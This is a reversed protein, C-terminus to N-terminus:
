IIQKKQPDKSDLFLVSLMTIDYQIIIMLQGVHVPHKLILHGYM